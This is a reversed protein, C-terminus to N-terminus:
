PWDLTHEWGGEELRRVYGFHELEALAMTVEAGALLDFDGALLLEILLGKAQWSLNDSAFPAFPVPVLLPPSPEIAGDNSQDSILHWRGHDDCHAYGNDDLEQLAAAYQPSDFGPWIGENAIWKTLLGKAALSIDPDQLYAPSESM